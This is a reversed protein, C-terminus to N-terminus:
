NFFKKSFILFVIFFIILCFFLFCCQTKRIHDNLLSTKYNVKEELLDLENLYRSNPSKKEIKKARFYLYHKSKRMILGFVFLV